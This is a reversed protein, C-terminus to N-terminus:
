DYLQRSLRSLSVTREHKGSVVSSVVELYLMPLPAVPQGHQPHLESSVCWRGTSEDKIVFNLYDSMEPGSLTLM